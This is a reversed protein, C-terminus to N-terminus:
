STRRLISSWMGKDNNRKDTLDAQVVIEGAPNVEGDLHINFHHTCITASFFHNTVPIADHHYVTNGKWSVVASALNPLGSKNKSISQEAADYNLMIGDGVYPALQDKHRRVVTQVQQESDKERIKRLLFDHFLLLASIGLLISIIPVVLQYLLDNKVDENELLLKLLFRTEYATAVYIMLSALFWTIPNRKGERATKWTSFAVYLVGLLELM